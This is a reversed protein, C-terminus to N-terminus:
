LFVEMFLSDFYRGELKRYKAIAGSEKFGFKKYLEIAQTNTSYVHLEVKELGFSKAYALAKEMLQSGVGKGRYDQAIGMGLTGRHNMRPNKLPVIDIWGIAQDGEVAYFVPAKQHILKRQFEFVEEKSPAEIMELYIRERAVSDLVTFFSEFYCEDGYVIRISM